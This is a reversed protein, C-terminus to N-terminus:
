AASINKIGECVSKFASPSKCDVGTKEDFLQFVMYLYKGALVLFHADAGHRPVHPLKHFKHLPNTCQRLNYSGVHHWMSHVGASYPTYCHNYFDIEGVEDAMKRQNEAWKSLNVNVYCGYRQSDVWREMSKLEEEMTRRMNADPHPAISKLQEIRLKMQGLGYDIFARSREAPKEFIWASNLYVETMPRLFLPAISWNWLTPSEALCTALTVQRAMLAGVVEHFDIQGHDIEWNNWREGLEANAESCFRKILKYASKPELPKDM